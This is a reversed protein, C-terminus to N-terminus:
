SQPEDPPGEKPKANQKLIDELSLERVQGLSPHAKPTNPSAPVSTTPQRKLQDALTNLDAPNNAGSDVPQATTKVPASEAEQEEEPTAADKQSPMTESIAAGSGFFINQISRSIGSLNFVSQKQKALVNMPESTSKTGNEVKSLLELTRTTPRNEEATGPDPKDVLSSLREIDAVSIRPAVVEEKKEDQSAERENKEDNAQTPAYSITSAIKQWIRIKPSFLYHLTAFFFIEFPRENIEVFTFALGLLLFPVAIAIRELLNFEIIPNYNIMSFLLYSGALTIFAYLLQKATLPGIIKDERQTQQPIRYQSM